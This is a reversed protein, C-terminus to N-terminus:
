QSGCGPRPTYRPTYRPFRARVTLKSPQWQVANRPSQRQTMSLSQRLDPGARSYGGNQM